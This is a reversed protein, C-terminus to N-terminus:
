LSFSPASFVPVESGALRDIEEVSGLDQAACCEALNVLEDFLSDESDLIPSVESGESLGAGGDGEGVAEAEWGGSINEPLGASRPDVGCSCDIDGM